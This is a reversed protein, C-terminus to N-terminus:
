NANIESRSSFIAFGEDYVFIVHTTECTQSSYNLHDGGNYKSKNRQKFLTRTGIYFFIPRFHTYTEPVGSILKVSIGKWGGALKLTSKSKDLAFYMVSSLTTFYHIRVELIALYSTMTVVLNM